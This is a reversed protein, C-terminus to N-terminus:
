AWTWDTLWKQYTKSWLRKQLRGDVVRYRWETQEAYVSIDESSAETVPKDTSLDQCYSTVPVLFLSLSALSVLLFRKM